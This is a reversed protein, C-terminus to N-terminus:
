YLCKDNEHYWLTHHEFFTNEFLLIKYIPESPNQKYFPFQIDKQIYFLSSWQYFLIFLIITFFSTYM